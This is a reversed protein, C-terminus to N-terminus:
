WGADRVVFIPEAEAGISRRFAGVGKKKKVLTEPALHMRFHIVYVTPTKLLKIFVFLVWSVTCHEFVAGGNYLHLSSQGASTLRSVGLRPIKTGRRMIHLKQSPPFTVELGTIPWVSLPHVQGLGQNAQRGASGGPTSGAASATM